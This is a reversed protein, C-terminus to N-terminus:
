DKAAIKFKIRGSEAVLAGDDRFAQVQWYYTQGPKMKTKIEDPLIIRTEKTSASMLPSKGALTVKYEIDEGVAKWELFAPVEAVEAVPSLVAISGGRVTGDGTLVLPPPVSGSRPILIWAALLVVGVSVGAVALRLPTLSGFVQEPWARLRAREAKAPEPPSLVGEEKLIQVIENRESMKDFCSRCIFYHEEFDTQEKPEMRNLIYDDIKDEYRCKSM